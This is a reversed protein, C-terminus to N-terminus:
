KKEAVKALKARQKKAGLGKGFQADLLAVKQEISLKAYEVKRADAGVKRVADAIKNRTAMEEEQKKNPEDRKMPPYYGKPLVSREDNWTVEDAVVVVPKTIAPVPKCPSTCEHNDTVYVKSCGCDWAGCESHGVKGADPCVRREECGCYVTDDSCWICVTM